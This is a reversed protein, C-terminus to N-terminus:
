ESMRGRDFARRKLAEGRRWFQRRRETRYEVAAIKPKPHSTCGRLLTARASAEGVREFGGCVFQSPKMSDPKRSDASTINSQPSPRQDDDSLKMTPMPPVNNDSSRAASTRWLQGQVHRTQQRARRRIRRHKSDSCQSELRQSGALAAAAAGSATTYDTKVAFAEKELNSDSLVRQEWLLSLLKSEREWMRKCEKEWMQDRTTVRPAVVGCVAGFDLVVNVVAGLVKALLCTIWLLIRFLFSLGFCILLIALFFQGASPEGEPSKGEVHQAFNVVLLLPVILNSPSKGELIQWIFAIMVNVAFRTASDSSHPSLPVTQGHLVNVEVDDASFSTLVLIYSRGPSGTETLITTNPQSTTLTTASICWTCDKSFCDRFWACHAACTSSSPVPPESISRRVSVHGKPERQDEVDICGPCAFIFKDIVPETPRISSSKVFGGKVTDMIVGDTTSTAASVELKGNAPRLCSDCSFRVDAPSRPELAPVSQKQQISAAVVVSLLLAVIFAYGMLNYFLPFDVKHFRQVELQCVVATATLQIPLAFPFYLSNSTVPSSTLSNKKRSATRGGGGNQPMTGICLVPPKDNDNTVGDGDRHTYVCHTAGRDDYYESLVFNLLLV